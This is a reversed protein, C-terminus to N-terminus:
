SVWGPANTAATMGKHNFLDETKGRELFSKHTARSNRKRPVKSQFNEQSFLISPSPHVAKDQTPLGEGPLLLSVRTRRRRTCQVRGAAPLVERTESSSPALRNPSYLTFLASKNQNGIACAHENEAHQGRVDHSEIVM